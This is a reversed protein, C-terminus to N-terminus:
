KKSLQLSTTTKKQNKLKTIIRSILVAVPHTMELGFTLIWDGSTMETIDLAFPEDVPIGKQAYEEFHGAPAFVKVPLSQPSLKWENLLGRDKENPYKMTWYIGMTDFILSAINDSTEQPLNTLEEAIVGLTYSKGSGRKGAVLIVHSRAIDLLLRNSLSTYQGMKVYGKGIYTLGKQKLSKKDAENRGIIIDYPM